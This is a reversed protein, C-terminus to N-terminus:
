HHCSGTDNWVRRGNRIEKRFKIMPYRSSLLLDSLVVQKRLDLLIKNSRTVLYIYLYNMILMKLLGEKSLLCYGTNYPPIAYACM